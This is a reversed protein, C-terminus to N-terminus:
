RNPKPDRFEAPLARDVRSAEAPECPRLADRAVLLLSLVSGTEDDIPFRGEPYRRAFALITNVDRNISPKSRDSRVPECQDGLSHLAQHVGEVQAPPASSRPEPSQASPVVAAPPDPSPGSNLLVTGLILTGVIAVGILVVAVARSHPPLTRRHGPNKTSAALHQRWPM